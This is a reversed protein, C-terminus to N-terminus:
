TDEKKICVLYKSRKHKMPVKNAGIFGCEGEPNLLFSLNKPKTFLCGKIPQTSCVGLTLLWGFPPYCILGKDYLSITRFTEILNRSPVFTHAGLLITVNHYCHFLQLSPDFISFGTKMTKMMLVKLPLNWTQKPSNRDDLSLKGLQMTIHLKPTCGKAEM